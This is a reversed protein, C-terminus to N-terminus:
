RRPGSCPWGCRSVREGVDVEGDCGATSACAAPLRTTGASRRPARRWASRWTRPWTTCGGGCRGSSRRCRRRRGPRRRKTSARARGTTSRWRRADARSRWCPHAVVNHLLWWGQHGLRAALRAMGTRTGTWHAIRQHYRDEATRAIPEGSRPRRGSALFSSTIPPAETIELAKVAWDPWVRDNPQYVWRVPHIGPVFPLRAVQEPPVHQEYWWGGVLADNREIQLVMYGAIPQNLWRFRAVYHHGDWRWDEYVGTLEHDGGYCYVTRGHGERGDIYITSGREEDVWAGHLYVFSMEREAAGRDEQRLARRVQSTVWREAQALVTADTHDDWNRMTAGDYRAQLDVAFAGFAAPSCRGAAQNELTGSSM